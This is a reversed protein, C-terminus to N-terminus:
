WWCAGQMGAVTANLNANIKDFGNVSQEGDFAINADGAM